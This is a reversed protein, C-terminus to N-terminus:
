SSCKKTSLFINSFIAFIVLTFIVLGFMSITLGTRFPSALPYAVATKFTAQLGSIRGFTKNSASLLLDSNNMILWVSSGVMAVGGLVFIDPTTNLEGTYSEFTDFPLGYFLLFTLGEFTSSLRHNISRQIKILELIRRLALGLGLISISVGISIGIRHVYIGILILPWGQKNIPGLLKFIQKLINFPWLFISIVFLTVFKILNILINHNITFKNDKFKM